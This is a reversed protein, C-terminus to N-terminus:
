SLFDKREPAFMDIIEGKELCVMGHVADSPVFVSDGPGLTRTEGSVTYDFRGSVVYTIQSHPHTHHTGIGGDEFWLRCAMLPDQHALVKRRSKEDLIKAEIDKDFFFNQMKMEELHVAM